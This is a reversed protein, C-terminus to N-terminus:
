IEGAGLKDWRLAGAGLVESLFDRAIPLYSRLSVQSLGREQALFRGYDRLLLDIPRETDSPPREPILKSRRLHQLLQILTYRIHQHWRTQKRPRKLFDGVRHENLPTIGIHRQDLWRSWHAVLRIKCTAALRSYGQESLCQAFGDLHSGLPGYRLRDLEAIEFHYSHDTM